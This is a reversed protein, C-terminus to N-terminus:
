SNCVILITGLNSYAEALDPKLEIAKRISLEAEELKGIDKLIVGYNSFVRHDKFGQKIFLQYYQAAKAIKGQSHYTFAQNIIQEKSTKSTTKTTNSFDDKIEASAVPVSFTKVETLEKKEQEKDSSEVM